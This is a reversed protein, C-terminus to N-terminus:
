TRAPRRMRQRLRLFAPAVPRLRGAPPGSPAAALERLRVVLRELQDIIARWEPDGTQVAAPEIMIVFYGVLRSLTAAFRGPDALLMELEAHSGALGPAKSQFAGLRRTREARTTRECGSLEEMRGALRDLDAAIENWRPDETWSAMDEVFSASCDIVYTMGLALNRPNEITFTNHKSMGAPKTRTGRRNRLDIAVRGVVAVAVAVALALRCLDPWQADPQSSSEVDQRSLHVAIPAVPVALDGDV